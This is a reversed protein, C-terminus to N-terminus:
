VSVVTGLVPIEDESLIINTANGNLITGRIDIIGTTRLIASEIQSIRVVLADEDEWTRKLDLFYGNVAEIIYDHVDDWEYESLLIIESEINIELEEVAEVTVYHDIPAMGVGQGQNPVPDIITQVEDVFMSSPKNFISDIFVLKVTGGGNWVPYVKVGGVGKIEKIKGKYDAINGGFALSDRNEEYKKRLSETDEKEEGPVLIETLMATTLGEVYTIPLLNGIYVNGIEGLQECRLVAENNPLQEVVIYTTTEIAFKAGISVPRNFIGKRLANSALKPKVGVEAARRELDEGVATDAFTRNYVDEIHSKVKALEEAVPALALYVISGKRKDLTNPIRDLMRSLIEKENM